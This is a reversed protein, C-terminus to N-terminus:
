REKEEYIIGERGENDPLDAEVRVLSGGQGFVVLIEGDTGAFNIKVSEEPELV